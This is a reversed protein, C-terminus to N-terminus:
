PVKQHAVPADGPPGLLLPRGELLVNRVGLLARKWPAGRDRHLVLSPWEWPATFAFLLALDRLVVRLPWWVSWHRADGILALIPDLWDCILAVGLYLLMQLFLSLYQLPHTLYPKTELRVTAEPRFTWWVYLHSIPWVKLKM